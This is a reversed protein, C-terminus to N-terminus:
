FSTLHRIRLSAPPHSDHFLSYLSDTIVPSANDRYLAILASVLDDPSSHEAAFADAEYEHKRSLANMLPSLLSMAYPALLTFLVLATANSPMSIDAISYFPTWQALLWLVYFSITVVLASVAMGKIIHKRRFHGLEHALVAEVEDPNLQELLTDFFVVRKNNGLGTFYANGHSSRRSGDMLFIGSSKFGTKEMLAQIRDRLSADELPTFKNFLPAILTPYAWSLVFSFGVIAAAAYIWWYTISDMLYLILAIIPTFLLLSILSIKILDALYTKLTTKNFGFREEIVFTRYLGFPLDLISAITSISLILAIGHLLENDILERLFTDLGNIVGAFLLVSIVIVSWLQHINDLSLKTRSYLNAKQHQRLSIRSEFLDPVQENGSSLTSTQRCNLWLHIATAFLILALAFIQLENM